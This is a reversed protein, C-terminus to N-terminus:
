YTSRGHSTDSCTSRGVVGERLERPNVGLARAIKSLMQGDIIAKGNEYDQVVQPRVNLRQALDSQTMKRAGRERAIRTRTKVALKEHRFDETERDLRGARAGAAGSPDVRKAESTVRGDRQAMRVQDPSRMDIPKKRIVVSNWDQCHVSSM